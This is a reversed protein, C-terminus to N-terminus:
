QRFNIDGNDMQDKTERYTEKGTDVANNLNEKQRQVFERGKDMLNRASEGLQQGRQGLVERGKATSERLTQRMEEGTRPAFLVGLAAGISMGLLFLAAKGTSYDQNETYRNGQDM